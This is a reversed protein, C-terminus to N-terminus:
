EWGHSRPVRGLMCVQQLSADIGRYKLVVRMM